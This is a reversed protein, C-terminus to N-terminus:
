DESIRSSPKDQRRHLLHGYHPERRENICQRICGASCEASHKGSKFSGCGHFINDSIKAAHVDKAIQKVILHQWLKARREMLGPAAPEGRGPEPFGDTEVEYDLAPVYEGHTPQLRQWYAKMSVIREHYNQFGPPKAWRGAAFNVTATIKAVLRDMEMRVEAQKDEAAEPDALIPSYWQLLLVIMEDHTMGDFPSPEPPAVAELKIIRSELNRTTM